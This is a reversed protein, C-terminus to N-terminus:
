NKSDLGVHDGEIVLNMDAFLFLLTLDQWVGEVASSMLEYLDQLALDQRMGRLQLVLM